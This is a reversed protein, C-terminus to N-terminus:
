DTYPCGGRTPSEDEYHSSGSNSEWYTEDIPTMNVGLNIRGRVNSLLPGMGATQACDPWQAGNCCGPESCNRETM